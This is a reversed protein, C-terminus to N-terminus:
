HVLLHVYKWIISRSIKLSGLNMQSLGVQRYLPFYEGVIIPPLVLLPMLGSMRRCCIVAKTHICPVDSFLNILMTGRKAQIINIIKRGLIWILILIWNMIIEQHVWIKGNISIAKMVPWQMWPITMGNTRTIPMFNILVAKRTIVRKTWSLPRVIKHLLLQGMKMIFMWKRILHRKTRSLTVLLLFRRWLWGKWLPWVWSHKVESNIIIPIPQEERTWCLWRTLVQNWTLMVVM